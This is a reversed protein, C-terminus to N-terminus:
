YNMKFRSSYVHYFLVKEEFSRCFKRNVYFIVKSGREQCGSDLVTIIEWLVGSNIMRRKYTQLGGKLIWQSKDSTEMHNVDVCLRTGKYDCGTYM